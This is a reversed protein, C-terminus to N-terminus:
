RQYHFRRDGPMIAILYQTIAMVPTLPVIPCLGPSYTYSDDTRSNDFYGLPLARIGVVTKIHPLGASPKSIMPKNASAASASDYASSWESLSQHIALSIDGSANASRCQFRRRAARMAALYRNYTLRDDGRANGGYFKRM